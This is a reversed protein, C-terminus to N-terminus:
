KKTYRYYVRPLKGVVKAPNGSVIANRPIEETVVSGASIVANEGIRTVGPMIISQAGIFVNDEIVLPTIFARTKKDILEKDNKLGYLDHGHTLIISREAIDVGDGITLDGTYDIETNRGFAVKRGIKLEGIRNHTTMIWVNYRISAGEGMKFRTRYAITRRNFKLPHEWKQSTWKAHFLLQDDRFQKVLLEDRLIPDIREREMKDKDYYALRIYDRNDKEYKFSFKLMDFFIALRSKNTHSSACVNKSDQWCYKIIDKKRQFSLM